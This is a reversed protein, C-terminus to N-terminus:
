AAPGTGLWAPLDRYGHAALTKATLDNSERYLGQVHRRLDPDFRESLEGGANIRLYARRLRRRLAPPVVGLKNTRRRLSNAARALRMNRPHRTVNRAGLDLDAVVETDIGLWRCLSEVSARADRHLDEAFVIRLDDGFEELWDGIYDAYFGIYLGSLGDRPVLDSAHRRRSQVVDLYEAFSGIDGLTGLSRQFTYASWLRETPDRLSIIIKPQDLVARLAGIVPLGGYSYTPTAELAYREGACHAFHRAYEEIPAPPGTHRRPNYQNFYGTEKEDSGCIDPHQALFAFLSGTGAKPVGAIVLNALRGSSLGSSM